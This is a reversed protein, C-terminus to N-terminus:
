ADVSSAQLGGVTLARIYGARVEVQMGCAIRNPDNVRGGELNGRGTCESVQLAAIDTTWTNAVDVERDGLVPPEFFPIANLEPGLHEIDEVVRVESCM